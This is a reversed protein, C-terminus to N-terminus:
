SGDGLIGGIRNSHLSAMWQVGAKQHNYLRNYLEIPIRLKPWVSNPIACQDASLFVEDTEADLAWASNEFDDGFSVNHKAMGPKVPTKLAEGDSDILEVSDEDILNDTESSQEEVAAHGGQVLLTADHELSSDDLAEIFKRMMFKRPTQIRGEQVVTSTDDHELSDDLSDDDSEDLPPNRKPTKIRGEQVVTSTDDHELSNDLSDDDTEDMPPKRKPTKIRGEQVVTSTDDHELSDDLSDDDTEDIPPQLKPTKIRGEQIVTSTDDYELSDHELSDNLFDADSGDVPPKRKPTKIRGEQEVTSCTSEHDLSDDVLSENDVDMLPKQEPTKGHSEETISTVITSDKRRETDQDRHLALAPQSLSSLTLNDMARSLNGDTEKEVEEGRVSHESGEDSSIDEIFIRRFANPDRKQSIGSRPPIDDESDDSDDWTHEHFNSM